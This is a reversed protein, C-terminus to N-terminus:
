KVDWFSELFPQIETQSSGPGYRFMPLDGKLLKRLKVQTGDATTVLLGNAVSRITPRIEFDVLTYPSGTYEIFFQNNVKLLRVNTMIVPLLRKSTDPTAPTASIVIPGRLVLDSEAESRTIPKVKAGLDLKILDKEVLGSWKPVRIKSKM